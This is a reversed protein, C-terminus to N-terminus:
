KRQRETVPSGCPVMELTEDPTNEERRQPLVASSQFTATHPRTARATRPDRRSVHVLKRIKVM